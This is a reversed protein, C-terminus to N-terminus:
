PLRGKERIGKGVQRSAGRCPTNAHRCQSASNRMHCRARDRDTCQIAYPIRDLIASAKTDLLILHRGLFRYEIEDPLTPLAALIRSPVTSFPKGERYSDNVEVSFEGPNDDMIAAWSSESIELLLAKRFAATVAPTFIDGQKAGARARRIRKALAHAVMRIEAPDNTVTQVPLGKELESRLEFYSWVRASFDVAIDGWVELSFHPTDADAKSKSTQSQGQPAVLVILAMALSMRKSSM